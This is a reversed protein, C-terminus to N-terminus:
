APPPSPAWPPRGRRRRGAPPMKWARRTGHQWCAQASHTLLPVTRGLYPWVNHPLAKSRPGARTPRQPRNSSTHCKHGHPTRRGPAAAPMRARTPDPVSSQWTYMCKVEHLVALRATRLCTRLEMATGKSPPLTTCVTGHCTPLDHTRPLSPLGVSQSQLRLSAPSARHLRSATHVIRAHRPPSCSLGTTHQM